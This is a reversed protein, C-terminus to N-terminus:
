LSCNGIMQGFIDTTLIKCHATVDQTDLAFFQLNQVLTYRPLNNSVAIELRQSCHREQQETSFTTFYDRNGPVSPINTLYPRSSNRESAPMPPRRRHLSRAPERPRATCGLSCVPSNCTSGSCVVCSRFTASQLRCGYNSGRTM